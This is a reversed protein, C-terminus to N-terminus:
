LNNSFGGFPGMLSSIGDKMDEDAQRFAENVAAVILDQMMEVDGSSVVNPDIKLSLVEHKGNVKATVMGGGAAAEYIKAALQEQKKQMQEQVAKAQKMLQNIDIKSM